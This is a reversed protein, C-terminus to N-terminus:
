IGIQNCCCDPRLFQWIHAVTAGVFCLSFYEVTMVYYNFRVFVSMPPVFLFLIKKCRARISDCYNCFKQKKKKLPVFFLVFRSNGSFLSSVNSIQVACIFPNIDFISQNIQFISLLVFIASNNMQQTNKGLLHPLSTFLIANAVNHEADFHERNALDTILLKAPTDAVAGDYMLYLFVSAFEVGNPIANPSTKGDKRMVSKALSLLSTNVLM